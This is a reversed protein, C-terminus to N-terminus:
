CGGGTSSGGSAPTVGTPTAPITVAGGIFYATDEILEQNARPDTITIFLSNSLPDLLISTGVTIAAGSGNFTRNITTTPTVVDTQWVAAVKNTLATSVYSLWQQTSGDYLTVPRNLMGDLVFFPVSARHGSACYVYNMTKDATVGEAALYAVQIDNSNLLATKTTGSPVTWYKRYDDAIANQIYVGTTQSVDGRADIIAVGTPDKKTIGLNINDVLALMQGISYRINFNTTSGSYLDRVSLTSAAVTPVTTTLKYGDSWSNATVADNWADDGGNLIKLREKPFGWYRFTYYARTTNMLSGSKSVSFVITTNKTIGLRKILPDMIPGNPIESTNTGVADTRNISLETGNNSNLLQAGPIHLATYLAPTTVTVIVVKDLCAPDTNNVKGEDIWQKLSTADILAAAKTTTITAQLAAEAASREAAVDTYSSGSCGWLTLAAIMVTGLLAAILARSKKMIKESM